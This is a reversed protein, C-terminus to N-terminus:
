CFLDNHTCFSEPNPRPITHWSVADLRLVQDTEWDVGHGDPIVAFIQEESSSTFSYRARQATRTSLSYRTWHDLDRGSPDCAHVYGYVWGAALEPSLLTPDCVNGEGATTQDILRPGQGLKQAWLTRMGLELSSSAIGSSTVYALWNGDLTLGTIVGTLGKPWESTGRSVPLKLAQARGSGIRWAFLNDPRRGMRHLPNESGGAPDRRLFVLRSGSIAPEHLSGGGPPLLPKEAAGASGLALEYLKCGLFAIANTCRSYVAAVGHGDPGLEVDFPSPRPPVAAPSIAGAPSRLVLAFGGGPAARSWATWGGYAAITPAQCDMPSDQDLAPGCGGQTDLVTPAALGAQAAPLSLALALLTSTVLTGIRSM